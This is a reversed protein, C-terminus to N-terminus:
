TGPHLFSVIALALQTSIGADRLEAPPPDVMSNLHASPIAQSLSPLKLIVYSKFSCTASCAPCQRSHMATHLM